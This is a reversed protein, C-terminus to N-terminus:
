KRNKESIEGRLIPLIANWCQNKLMGDELNMTGSKSFIDIYFSEKMRRAYFNRDYDLFTAKDWAIVHDPHKLIHMYIGNNSDCNKVSRKHQTEREDFWQSTEGIYCFNCTERTIKYVVNKRRNNKPPGGNILYKGLTQGRKFIVNVGERALQKRLRDSAGRVYPICLTDTRNEAEREEKPKDFVYSGIVRDVEKPTYGSSIFAHSLLKVEADKQGEEEDCLSYARHLMSKIIGLQEARPRNSSFNSYKLTHSKKRYIGATIRFSQKCLNLDVFPLYGEQEMEMTWQIRPNISNLYALFIPINEYGHQWLCYVDDVERVWFIPIFSNKNPDFVYENEYFEMYIAALDGSISKGIATGDTQTWIKGRYDMFHTEETCIQLLNTIQKPKWKTRDKLTKDKQLKGQVLSLTQKVPVSPFVSRVDFSLQIFHEEIEIEKLRQKFHYSDKIYSKAKLALPHIIKQLEKCVKYTPDDIQNVVPRGPYNDNPKHTKIPISLKAIVAATVLYKSYEKEQLGMDKFATILRTRVHRLISKESKTCEEVDMANIQDQEKNIYNTENELVSVTGKDAPIKIIENDDRLDKLLGREKRTTNPKIQMDHFQQIHTVVINRIRQAREKNIIIIREDGGTNAKEIRQCCLEAAQTIEMTPFRRLTFQFNFGLRGILQETEEPIHKGSLNYVLKRDCINKSEQIRADKDKLLQKKYVVFYKCL